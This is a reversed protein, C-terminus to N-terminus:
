AQEKAWGVFRRTLRHFFQDAAAGLIGLAALCVFLREPQSFLRSQDLRFGLGQSAGAQESAVILIFAM